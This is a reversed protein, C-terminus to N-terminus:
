PVACSLWNMPGDRAPPAIAQNAWRRPDETAPEDPNCPTARASPMSAKVKATDTTVRHSIDELFGFGAM